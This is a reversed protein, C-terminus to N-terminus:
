CKTRVRGINYTMLAQTIKKKKLFIDGAFEICQALSLGFTKCFSECEGWMEKDAMELFLIHPRDKLDISYVAKNTVVVCTEFRIAPFSNQLVEADSKDFNSQKKLHKHQEMYNVLNSKREAQIPELVEEPELIAPHRYINIIHEDPFEFLGILAKENFECDDGIRSKALASSVVGVINLFAKSDSSPSDILTTVSEGDDDDDDLDNGDKLDENDQDDAMSVSPPTEEKPTTMVSSKTFFMLNETLMIDKCGDPIKYLFLPILSIDLGHVSLTNSYHHLASLFYKNLFYQLIFYPGHPTTLIEPVTGPTEM